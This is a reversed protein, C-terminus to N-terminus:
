RRFLGASANPIIVHTSNLDRRLRCRSCCADRGLCRERRMLWSPRRKWLRSLSRRRHKWPVIVATLRTARARRACPRRVAETWADKDEFVEVRPAASERQVSSVEMRESEPLLRAFLDTISPTSRYSTMLHCESVEGRLREFTSKVQTFTLGGERIAQNEDGLLMFHARPFFRALVALQPITYDQVEDIMVYRADPNSLGTCAIKLYLWAGGLRYAGCRDLPPGPQGCPAVRRAIMGYAIDFRGRILKLAAKRVEKDDDINVPEGFAALQEDHTLSVVEDFAEDSAAMSALRSDLRRTLEERM